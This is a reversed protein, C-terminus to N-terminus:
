ATFARSPWCCRSAPLRDGAARPQFASRRGVGGARRGDHSAERGTRQSRARPDRSAVGARAGVGRRRHAGRRGDLAALPQGGARSPRSRRPSGVSRAFPRPRRRRCRRDHDLTGDGSAWRVRRGLVEEGAYYQRAFAENVIAVLPAGDRDASTFARGKLLPIGMARFYGANVGRYYVEPESGPAMPKGEFALNHFIPLAASRSTRLSRSMGCGPSRACGSRSRRGSAHATSAAATASATSRSTGRSM